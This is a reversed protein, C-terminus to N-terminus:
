HSRATCVEDPSLDGAATCPCPPVSWSYHDSLQTVIFSLLTTHPSSTRPVDKWPLRLQCAKSEWASAFKTYCSLKSQYTYPLSYLLEYQEKLQLFIFLQFRQCDCYVCWYISRCTMCPTLVTIIIIYRVQVHLCHM